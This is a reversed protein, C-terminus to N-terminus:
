TSPITHGLQGGLAEFFLAAGLPAALHDYTRPEEGTGKALQPETRPDLSTGHASDLLRLREALM